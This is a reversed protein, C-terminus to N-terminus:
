RAAAHRSALVAQRGRRVIDGELTAAAVHTDGQAPATALAAFYQALELADEMALNAGQGQFPCMPHAADGILWLRGARVRQTPEKDYYGHVVITAPDIAAVIEPIPAHWTRTAEQLRRWLEAPPQAELEADSAAHVVYSVHISDPQRYCFVSSGDDGLTM